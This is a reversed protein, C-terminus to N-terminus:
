RGDIPDPLPRLTPLTGEREVTQVPEGNLTVALLEFDSPITGGGKIRTGFDCNSESHTGGDTTFALTYEGTTRESLEVEVEDQLRHCVRADFTVDYSEGHAVLHVWGSHVDDSLESPGGKSLSLGLTDTTGSTGDSQGPINSQCGALSTVGATGILLLIRRRSGEYM